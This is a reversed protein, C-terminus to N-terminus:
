AAFVIAVNTGECVSFAVLFGLPLFREFKNECAPSCVTVMIRRVNELQLGNGSIRTTKHSPLKEASM